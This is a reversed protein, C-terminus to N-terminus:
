ASPQMTEDSEPVGADWCVLTASDRGRETRVRELAERVADEIRREGGSVASPAFHDSLARPNDFPRSGCELLGDTTLLVRTRGPRLQRVGTAYCPVPLAFTNVRGVWEFFMRQNLAFQGLRAFEPHLVYVPIDGVSLWWLYAGKQACLLLATEGRVAACARRFNEDGLGRTVLESLSWLPPVEDGRGNLIRAVERELEAVRGLVLDASESSGHADLLAAFCWSGDGAAWVLAADENKHAGAETTGGYRGVVAHGCRTVDPAELFPEERGSWSFSHLKPGGGEPPRM